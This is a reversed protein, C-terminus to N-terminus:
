LEKALLDDIRIKVGKWNHVDANELLGSILIMQGVSCRITIEYM